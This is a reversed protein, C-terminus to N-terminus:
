LRGERDLSDVSEFLCINFISVSHFQVFCVCIKHELYHERVVRVMSSQTTFLISIAQFIFSHEVESEKVTM